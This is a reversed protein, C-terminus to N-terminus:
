CIPSPGVFMDRRRERSVWLEVGPLLFTGVVGPCSIKGQPRDKMWVWELEGLIVTKLVRERSM